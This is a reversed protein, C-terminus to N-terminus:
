SGLPFARKINRDCLTGPSGKGRTRCDTGLIEITKAMTEGRGFHAVGLLGAMTLVMKAVRRPICFIFPHGSGANPAMDMARDLYKGM